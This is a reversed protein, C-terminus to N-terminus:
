IGERRNNACVYCSQPKRNGDVLVKSPTILLGEIARKMALLAAQLINIADIEAVSAWGVHWALAKDCIEKFLSERQKPTLLKSDTLGRIRKKPNLIVAAATVPGALPGRGAEDVGAIYVLNKDKQEM